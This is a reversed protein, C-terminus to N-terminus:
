SDNLKELALDRTQRRMEAHYAEEVEVSTKIAFALDPYTAAADQGALELAVYATLDDDDGFDYQGPEVFASLNVAANPVFSVANIRGEYFDTTTPENRPQTLVAEVWGAAYGEVMLAASDMPTGLRLLKRVYTGIRDVVYGHDEGTMSAVVNAVRAMTTDLEAISERKVEPEFDTM